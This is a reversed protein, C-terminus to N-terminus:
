LELFNSFNLYKIWQGYYAFVVHDFNIKIKLGYGSGDCFM